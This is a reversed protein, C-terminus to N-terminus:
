VEVLLCSSFLGEAQPFLMFLHLLTFARLSASVHLLTHLLLRPEVHLRRHIPGVRPGVLSCPLPSRPVTLGKQLEAGPFHQCLLM